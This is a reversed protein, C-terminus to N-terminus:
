SSQIALNHFDTHEIIAASWFWHEMHGMKIKRERSVGVKFNVVIRFQMSSRVAYILEGNFQGGIHHQVKLVTSHSVTFGIAQLRDYM